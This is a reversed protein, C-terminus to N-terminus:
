SSSRPAPSSTCRHCLRCLSVSLSFCLCLCVSFSFSLSFFSMFLFFTLMFLRMVITPVSLSLFFSMVQCLCLSLCVSLSLYLSLVEMQMRRMEQVTESKVKEVEQQLSKLKLDKVELEKERQRMTSQLAVIRQKLSSVEEQLSGVILTTGVQQGRESLGSNPRLIRSPSGLPHSSTTSSTNEAERQHRLLFQSEADGLVSESQTRVMRDYKASSATAIRQLAEIKEQEVSVRTHFDMPPLQKRMLATNATMSQQKKRRSISKVAARPPAADTPLDPVQPRNSIARELLKFDM